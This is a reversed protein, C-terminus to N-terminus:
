RPKRRTEFPVRKGADLSAKGADMRENFGPLSELYDWVAVSFSKSSPATPSVRGSTDAQIAPAKHMARGKAV